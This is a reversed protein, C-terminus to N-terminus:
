VTSVYFTAASGALLEGDIGMKSGTICTADDSALHTAIAAVEEPSGFRHLPTNKVLAAMCTERDAGSGLM